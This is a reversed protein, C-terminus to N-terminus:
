KVLICENRLCLQFSFSQKVGGGHFVSYGEVSLEESHFVKLNQRMDFSSLLSYGVNRISLSVSTPSFFGWAREAAGVRDPAIAIWNISSLFLPSLWSWFQTQPFLMWTEQGSRDRWHALVLNGGQSSIRAKECWSWLTRTLTLYSLLLSRAQWGSEERKLPKREPTWSCHQASSISPAM